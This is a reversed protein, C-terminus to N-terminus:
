TGETSTFFDVRSPQKHAKTSLVARQGQGCLCRNATQGPNRNLNLDLTIETVLPAVSHLRQLGFVERAHPICNMDELLCTKSGDRLKMPRIMMKNRM